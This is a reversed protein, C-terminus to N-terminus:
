DYPLLKFLDLEGVNADLYFLFNKKLVKDARYQPRKNILQYGLTILKYFFYTNNEYHSM